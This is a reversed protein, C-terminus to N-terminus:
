MFEKLRFVFSGGNKQLQRSEEYRETDKLSQFGRIM